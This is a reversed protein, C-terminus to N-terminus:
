TIHSAGTLEIEIGVVGFRQQEERPYYLDMDSASALSINEETYGCKFLPLTRYLEDFSAFTHLAIVRCLLVAGKGDRSTFEIEDGVSIKRRKDDLLRLEVTKKGEAILRFPEDNLKMSHKM